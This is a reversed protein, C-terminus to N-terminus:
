MYSYIMVSYVGIHSVVIKMLMIKGSLLDDMSALTELHTQVEDFKSTFAMSVHQLKFVTTTPKQARGQRWQRALHDVTSTYASYKGAM